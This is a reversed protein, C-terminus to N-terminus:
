LKLTTWRRYWVDAVFRRVDDSILTSLLAAALFPGFFGGISLLFLMLGLFLAIVFLRWLVEFVPGTLIGVAKSGTSRPIPLPVRAM